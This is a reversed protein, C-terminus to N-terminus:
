SGPLHTRFGSWILLAAIAILTILVTINLMSSRLYITRPFHIRFGARLVIAAGHVGASQIRSASIL